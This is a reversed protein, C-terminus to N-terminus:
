ILVVVFFDLLVIGRMELQLPAETIKKELLLWIHLFSSKNVKVHIQTWTTGCYFNNGM